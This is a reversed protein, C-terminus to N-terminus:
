RAIERALLLYRDVNEGRRLQEMVTPGDIFEKLIREGACDADTFEPVPKGATGLRQYDNWESQLKDGFTYYSCPAYHIQKLVM